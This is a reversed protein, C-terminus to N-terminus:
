SDSLFERSLRSIALQVTAALPALVIAFCTSLILMVIELGGSGERDDDQWPGGGWWMTRAVLATLMTIASALAVAITSAFMTSRIHSVEHGIVGGIRM